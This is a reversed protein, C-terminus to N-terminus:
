INLMPGLQDLDEQKIRALQAGSPIWDPNPAADEAKIPERSL